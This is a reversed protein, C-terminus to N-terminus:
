RGNKKCWRHFSLQVLDLFSGNRACARHIAYNDAQTAIIVYDCKNQMDNLACQLLCTYIGRGSYDSHVANLTIEGINKINNANIEVIKYALFGVIINDDKIILVKDAFEGLVSNYAWDSYIKKVKESSIQVDNIFRTRVRKKDSFANGSLESVEIADRKKAFTVNMNYKQKEIGSISKKDWVHYLSADVHYFGFNTIKKILSVNNAPIKIVRLVDVSDCTLLSEGLQDQFRIPDYVDIHLSKCEFIESEFSNEKELFGFDNILLIDRPVSSSITRLYKIKETVTSFNLQHRINKRLKSEAKM